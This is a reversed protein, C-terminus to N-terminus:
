WYLEGWYVAEMKKSRAHPLFTDDLCLYGRVGMSRALKIFALMFGSASFNGRERLRTLADHGLGGLLRAIRAATARRALMMLGSVYEVGAALAVGPLARAIRLSDFALGVMAMIALPSVQIMSHFDPPPVFLDLRRGKRGVAKM